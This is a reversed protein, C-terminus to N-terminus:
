EDRAAIVINKEVRRPAAVQMQMTPVLVPLNIEVNEKKKRALYISVDLRLRSVKYGGGPGGAASSRTRRSLARYAPGKEM